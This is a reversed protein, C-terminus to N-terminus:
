LLKGPHSSVASQEYRYVNLKTEIKTQRTKTFAMVYGIVFLRMVNVTTIKQITSHTGNSQTGDSHHAM